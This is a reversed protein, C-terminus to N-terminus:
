DQAPYWINWRGSRKMKLGTTRATGDYRRKKREGWEKQEQLEEVSLASRSLKSTILETPRTLRVARFGAKTAFVKCGEVFLRDWRRLDVPITVGKVGQLQRIYLENNWFEVALGVLPSDKVWLTIGLPADWHIRGHDRPSMGQVPNLSFHLVVPTTCDKFMETICEILLERHKPQWLLIHYLIFWSVRRRLRNAEAACELLKALWSNPKVGVRMVYGGM